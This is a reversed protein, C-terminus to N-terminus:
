VRLDDARWSRIRQKIAGRSTTKEDLVARVLLPIEEDSAFRLAVLQGLTLEPIRRRLEEPLLRELRLREELRIVRDQVVLPNIRTHWLAGGVGLALLLDLMGTWSPRLVLLVIALLTAAAAPLIALWYRWPLARVHNAYNQATDEPM